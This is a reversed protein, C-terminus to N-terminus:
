FLSEDDYNEKKEFPTTAQKYQYNVRKRRDHYFKLMTDSIIIGRWKDGLKRTKYTLIPLWIAKILIIYLHWLWPLWITIKEIMRKFWTEGTILDIWLFINQSLSIHPLFHTIWHNSTYIENIYSTNASYLPVLHTIWHCLYLDYPQLATRYLNCHERDIYYSLCFKMTKSYWFRKLWIITFMIWSRFRALWMMGPKSIILVDIDSEEHLANFTISNCLYIQEVFPISRYLWGYKIIHDLYESMIASPEQERSWYEPYVINYTTNTEELWSFQTAPSPVPYHMINYFIHSMTDIYVDSFYSVM